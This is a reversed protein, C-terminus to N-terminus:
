KALSLQKGDKVVVGETVLSGTVRYLYNPAMKFAKALEAVTTGPNAKIAEVVRERRDNKRPGKSKTTSKTGKAKANSKTGKSKRAKPAPKDAPVETVVTDGTLADLAEQLSSREADLSEIQSRIMDAAQNITDNM